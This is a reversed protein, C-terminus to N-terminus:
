GEGSALSRAKVLLDRVGSPITLGVHQEALLLLSAAEAVKDQAGVKAIEDRFVAPSRLLFGKSVSAARWYETVYASFSLTARVLTSRRSYLHVFISAQCVLADEPKCEPSRLLAALVIIRRRSDDSPISRLRDLLQHRLSPGELEQLEEILGRWYSPDVLSEEHQQIPKVWHRYETWPREGVLVCVLWPVLSHWFAEIEALSKKEDSLGKAPPLVESSATPGGGPGRWDQTALRAADLASDWAAGFDGNMAALPAFTLGLLPLGFPEAEASLTKAKALVRLAAKSYGELALAWGLLYALSSRWIPAGIDALARNRALVNDPDPTTYDSTRVERPRSLGGHTLATWGVVFVLKRFSERFRPDSPNWVRDIANAVTRFAVLARRRAGRIWQILGFVAVAELVDLIPIPVDPTQGNGAAIGTVDSRPCFAVASRSLTALVQPDRGSALVAYRIGARLLLGARELQQTRFAVRAGLTYATFRFYTFREGPIIVAETFEALSEENHDADSLITARTARLLFALDPDETTELALKLASLADDRRGMYDALAIARARVAAVRISPVRKSTGLAELKELASLVAGWDQDEPPLQSVHMWAHDALIRISEMALSSGLALSLIEPVMRHLEEIIARVDDFVKTRVVPLWILDGRLVYVEDSSFAGPYTNMVQIAAAARRVAVAPPCQELIPGTGILALVASRSSDDDLPATSTMADLDRELIEANARMMYAVRLQFGRIAVRMFLPIEAPWEGSTFLFRLVGVQQAEFPTRAFHLVQIVLTALRSWDEAAFLHLAARVGDRAPISAPKLLLSALVNHIGKQLEGSLHRKGAEAVLPTVQYIGRAESIWPGRLENFVEGPRDVQPPVAAVAEVVEQSFDGFALSLRALLERGETRPILDIMRRLAASQEEEVAKGSLLGGLGSFDTPWKRAGLWRIAASLLTPHGHTASQMLGVYPESLYLDPAGHLKLLERIEEADLLPVEIQKVASDPFWSTVSPALRRQGNTLLRGGQGLVARAVEGLRVGLRPMHVLDPADDLILVGGEGLGEALIGIADEPSLRGQTYDLWISLDRSRATCWAVIQDHLHAMATTWDAFGAFSIWPAEKLGLDTVIVQTLLTKGVGAGGYLHFWGAGRLTELVPEVLGRRGILHIPPKPPSDPPPVRFAEGLNVVQSPDGLFVRLNEDSRLIIDHLVRSHDATRIEVDMVREELSGLRFAISEELTRIREILRNEASTLQLDKLARLLDSRDLKKIGSKSLTELARVTLRDVAFSVTEPAALKGRTLRGAIEGRLDVLGPRQVNWDIAAVFEGLSANDSSRVFGRFERYLKTVSQPPKFLSSMVCARFSELISAREEESADAYQASSVIGPLGRPFNLGSEISPRATTTYIFRVSEGLRRHRWYYYFYALTTLVQPSRLSIPNALHKVQEFVREFQNPGGEFIERLQVIDEESECILTTHEDLDAWRLVTTQIQFFYGRITASADRDIRITM